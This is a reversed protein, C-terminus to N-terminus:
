YIGVSNGRMRRKISDLGSKVLPTWGARVTTIAGEAGITESGGTDRYRWLQVATQLTAEALVALDDTSFGFTATVSYPIGRLWGTSGYFPSGLSPYSMDLLIGTSDTIRLVGDVLAYDPVTYGSLTTVATVTSMPLDSSLFVTGDGYLTRTSSAAATLSSTAGIYTNVFAEARDLIKTLTVDFNALEGVTANQFQSIYGTAGRLDALTSYTAVGNELRLFVGINLPFV